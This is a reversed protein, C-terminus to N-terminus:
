GRLGHRGGGSADAGTREPASADWPPLRPAPSAVRAALAPLVLIGTGLVAAVDLSAARLLGIGGRTAPVQPTATETIMDCTKAAPV